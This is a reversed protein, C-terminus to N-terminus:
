RLTALRRAVESFPLTPDHMQLIRGKLEAGGPRLTPAMDLIAIVKQYIALELADPHTLNLPLERLLPPESAWLKVRKEVRRLRWYLELRKPYFVPLLWRYPLLMALLLILCLYTSAREAPYLADVLAPTVLMGLALGVTSLCEVAYAAFFALAVGYRLKMPRVQEARLLRVHMPVFILITWATMAVDRISKIMQIVAETSILRTVTFWGFLVTCIVMVLPSLLTFVRRLPQLLVQGDRIALFFAHATGLILLTRVFTTVPLGGFRSDITLEIADVTLAAIWYMSFFIGWAVLSAGSTLKRHKFALVFRYAFFIWLLLNLSIVVAQDTM